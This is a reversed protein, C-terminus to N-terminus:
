PSCHNSLRYYCVFLCVNHKLITQYYLKAGQLLLAPGGINTTMHLEGAVTVLRLQARYEHQGRINMTYTCM